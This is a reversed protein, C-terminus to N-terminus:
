YCEDHDSYNTAVLGESSAVSFYDTFKFSM